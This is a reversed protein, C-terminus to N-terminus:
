SKKRGLAGCACRQAQIGDLLDCYSDSLTALSLMLVLVNVKREQEEAKHRSSLVAAVTSLLIPLPKAHVLNGFNLTKLLDDILHAFIIPSTFNGIGVLWIVVEFSFIITSWAEPSVM